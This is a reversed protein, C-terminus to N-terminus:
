AHVLIRHSSFSFSCTLTLAVNQVDVSFFPVHSELLKSVHVGEELLTFLTISPKSSNVQTQFYKYAKTNEVVV